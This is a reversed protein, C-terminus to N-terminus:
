EFSTNELFGQSSKYRKKTGYFENYDRPTIYGEDSRLRDDDSSSILNSGTAILFSSRGGMLEVLDKTKGM